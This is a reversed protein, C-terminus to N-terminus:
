LVSLELIFHLNNVSKLETRPCLQCLTNVNPHDKVKYEEGSLKLASIKVFASGAGACRAGGGGTTIIKSCKSQLVRVFKITILM